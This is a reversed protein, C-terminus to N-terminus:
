REIEKYPDKKYTSFKERVVSILLLVMGATLAAIGIKFLLPTGTESIFKDLAEIVAYSIVVVAGALFLLWAFKREAKNFTKLWYSDWVEKSPNKLQMKKLAEKIRKQESLEKELEPNDKLISELEEKESPTLEDRIFRESLYFFRENM